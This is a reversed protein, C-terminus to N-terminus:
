NSEFSAYDQMTAELTSGLWEELALKLQESEIEARIRDEITKDRTATATNIEEYEAGGQQFLELIFRYNEEAQDAVKQRQELIKQTTLFSRYLTLVKARLSLQGNKVEAQAIKLNEKAANVQHKTTFLPLLRLSLGISFANSTGDSLVTPNEPMNPNNPISLGDTSGRSYNVFPAFGELYGLKKEAIEEDAIITRSELIRGSPHNNWAIFVLYEEFSQIDKETPITNSYELNQAALSIFMLSFSLAFLIKM